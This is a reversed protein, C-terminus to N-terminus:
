HIFTHTHLLILVKKLTKTNLDYLGEEKEHLNHIHLTFFNIPRADRFNNVDLHKSIYNPYMESAVFSIANAGSGGLGRYGDRPYFLKGDILCGFTNEGTQTEHPLRSYYDDSNCSISLCIFLLIILKKM